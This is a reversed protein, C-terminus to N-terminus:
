AKGATQSLEPFLEQAVVDILSYALQKNLPPSQLSSHIVSLGPIIRLVFPRIWFPLSNFRAVLAPGFEKFRRTMDDVKSASAKATQTKPTFVVGKLLRLLLAIHATSLGIRLLYDILWVVFSNFTNKILVGLTMCLHIAFEGAGFVRVALFLFCDYTSNLALQPHSKVPTTGVTPFPNKRKSSKVGLLKEMDEEKLGFNDGFVSRTLCRGKTRRGEETIDTWEFKGGVNSGSSKVRQVPIEPPGANGALLSTSPSAHSSSPVSPCASSAVQINSTAATSNIFAALFPELHQGREKRLRLPLTTRRIMRGLNLESVVGGVMMPPGGFGLYGAPNSSAFDFPSRLFTHLLDSGKLNPMQLLKQLYEEFIPRRSHMFEAGKPGFLVRKPPLHNDPFEGHFEVLKQELLYFDSYKREVTWNSDSPIDEGQVDIRRVHILFTTGPSRTNGGIAGATSNGTSERRVQVNPITVRWASLDRPELSRGSSEEVEIFDSDCDLDDGEDVFDGEGLDGADVVDGSGLEGPDMYFVTQGEIPSSRLAGRIKQIKSSLKSVGWGESQKKSSRVKAPSGHMSPSSNGSKNFQASDKQGCLFIYYEESQHFLPCLTNELLSYAHEYAQFLPTTTRLKVIDEAPGALVEKMEEVVSESFIIRDPSDSRFYVSYLDWAEQYLNYIEQKDLEPNLIKRNFEEVDLCFQLVNVAGEKKLFQMFPYLLSQDKLICSLSELLASKVAARGIPLSPSSFNALLSVKQTSVDKSSSGTTTVALLLLYNISNPDALADLAPLLVWGSLLERVLACWNKCQLQLPPLLHPLLKSTLQRLYELECERSRTAPHLRGGELLLKLAGEELPNLGRGDAGGHSKENGKRHKQQKTQQIREAERISCMYDEIHCLAIPVFKETIVVPINVKLLRRLFICIAHRVSTRLEQVFDEDQSLDEYWSYIFQNLAQNLFDELAKDVELPVDLGLWPQSAFPPIAPRHRKCKGDGCVSCFALTPTLPCPLEYLKPASYGLAHLFDPAEPKASFIAKFIFFGATYASLVLLGSVLSFLAALLSSLFLVTLFSYRTLPDNWIKFVFIRWEAEEM